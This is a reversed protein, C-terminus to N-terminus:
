ARTLAGAAFRTGTEPDHSPLYITPAEQVFRRIHTLTQRALSTNAVIGGIRGDQMQAEDFSTDGALFYNLAGDRYIVSQHGMSHGPTPVIWVSGDRTVAQAKSFSGLAGDGFTPFEPRFWAPYHCALAGQSMPYDLEPIIFTANPFAALGGVHDGHLHTQIVWRVANPDINLAQLQAGIEDAPTVSFRLNNEYIFRTAPDCNFYGPENFIAAEGTDIVIVGEPHEIAWTFVPMWATWRKDLMITALRLREVGVLDRHAAKVAVYGTQIAHLRVGSASVITRPPVQVVDSSVPFVPLEPPVPLVPRTQPAFPNM